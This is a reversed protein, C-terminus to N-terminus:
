ARFNLNFQEMWLRVSVARFIQGALATDKRETKFDNIISHLSKQDFVESDLAYEDTLLREAWDMEEGVMDALRTNFGIKDRRALIEEPLLDGFAERLIGKRQGNQLFAGTDLQATFELVRHDLFPMRSEISHTMSSIDDYHTLHPLAMKEVAERLVGEPANLLNLDVKQNEVTERIKESLWWRQGRRAWLRLSRETKPSFAALLLRMKLPFSFQLAQAEAWFRRLWLHRADESLLGNLMWTYGFLVEDGGQGGLVVRINRAQAADMLMGHAIISPDGFPEEQQEIVLSLDRSLRIDNIPCFTVDLKSRYRRMMAQVYRTEDKAADEPTQGSFIPLPRHAADAVIAVIASSDFGGSLTFGVPVDSLLQSRVAAEMVQRFDRVASADFPRRHRRETVTVSWYRQPCISLDDPSLWAFTAPPLSHIEQFFTASGLHGYCGTALYEAVALPNAKPRDLTALLPKKESSFLLMDGKKAWFLPKQGYRDRCLMLKQEATDWLAFAWMGILEPLIATGFKSLLVLLTETDGTSRFCHDPCHKARLELHNYIEGNQIIAFRGDHSRMPQHGAPSLDLISLRRHLFAIHKEEFFGAYDPGRHQLMASSKHLLTPDNLRPTQSLIGFIGCM